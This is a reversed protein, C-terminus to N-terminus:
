PNIYNLNRTQSNILSVTEVESDEVKPGAERRTVVPIPTILTIRVLTQCTSQERVISRMHEKLQTKTKKKKKLKAKNILIIKKNM